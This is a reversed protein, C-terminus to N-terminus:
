ARTLRRTSRREPTAIGFESMWRYVTNPSVGLLVAADKVRDGSRELATLLRREREAVPDNSRPLRYAIPEHQPVRSIAGNRKGASIADSVNVRDIWPGDALVAAREIVTQLERVNRPWDYAMLADLASQTLRAPALEGLALMCREALIPLDEIHERLPPVCIVLRALRASLDGQFRGADVLAELDQNAASILRFDTCVENDSGVPRVLRTELVRLLKPQASPSLRHIEDLFLTGHDAHQLLGRRAGTSSTFAGRVHGFLESEVLGEGLAAVNAVVYRGTRRSTAHIAEAVLGKGAGTPGTILVPLPTPGFRMVLRRVECMSSSAGLLLEEIRQTM